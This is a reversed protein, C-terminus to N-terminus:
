LGDIVQYDGNIVTKVVINETVILEKENLLDFRVTFSPERAICDILAISFSKEAKIINILCDQSSDNRIIAINTTSVEGSNDVMSPAFSLNPFYAKEDVIFDLRYSKEQLMYQLPFPENPSINKNKPMGIEVTKIRIDILAFYAYDDSVPVCACLLVMIIFM